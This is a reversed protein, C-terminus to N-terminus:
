LNCCGVILVDVKESWQSVLSRNKSGAVIYNLAGKLLNQTTTKYTSQSCQWHVTHILISIASLQSSLAAVSNIVVTPEESVM